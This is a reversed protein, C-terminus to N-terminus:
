ETKKQKKIDWIAEMHVGLYFTHFSALRADKEPAVRDVCKEHCWNIM